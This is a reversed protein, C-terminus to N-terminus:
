QFKFYFFRCKLFWIRILVASRFVDWIGEIHKFHFAMTFVAITGQGWVTDLRHNAGIFAGITFITDGLNKVITTGITASGKFFV